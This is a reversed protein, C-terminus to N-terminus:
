RGLTGSNIPNGWKKTMENNWSEPVNFGKSSGDFTKGYKTLTNIAPIVAGFKSGNKPIKMKKEFNQPLILGVTLEKTYPSYWTPMSYEGNANMLYDPAKKKELNYYMFNFKKNKKKYFTDLLKLQSLCATCTMSGYLIIDPGLDITKIRKKM